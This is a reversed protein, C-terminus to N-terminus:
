LKQREEHRKKINEGLIQKRTERDSLDKTGELLYEPYGGMRELITQSPKLNTLHNRLLKKVLEQSTTKEQSLIEILYKEAEDDLNLTLM